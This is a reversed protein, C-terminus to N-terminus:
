KQQSSRALGMKQREMVNCACSNTFLTHWGSIGLVQLIESAHCGTIWWDQNETLQTNGIYNM